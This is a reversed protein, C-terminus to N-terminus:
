GGFHGRKQGKKQGVKERGIDEDMCFLNGDIFIFKQYFIEYIFFYKRM